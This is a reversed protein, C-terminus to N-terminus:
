RIRECLGGWADWAGRSYDEMLMESMEWCNKKPRRSLKKGRGNCGDESSLLVEYNMLIANTMDLTAVTETAAATAGAAARPAEPKFCADGM